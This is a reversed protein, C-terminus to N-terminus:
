GGGRQYARDFRQMFQAREDEDYGSFTITVESRDVSLLSSLVRKPLSKVTITIGKKEDGARVTSGDFQYDLGALAAPLGRRFEELTLAMDKVLTM